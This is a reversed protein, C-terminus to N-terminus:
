CDSKKSSVNRLVLAGNVLSVEISDGPKWDVEECIDQPINLLVFDEEDPISEFIEDYNYTKKNTM